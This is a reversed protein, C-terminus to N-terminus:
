FLDHIKKKINKNHNFVYFKLGVFLMFNVMTIM